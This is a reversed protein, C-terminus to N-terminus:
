LGKPRGLIEALVVARKLPPLYDLREPFGARRAPRARGQGAYQAGGGPSLGSEPAPFYPGPELNEAGSPLGASLGPFPGSSPASPLDPFSGSDPVFLPTSFPVSVPRPAVAPAPPAPAAQEPEDDVSLNWASFAEDGDEDEGYDRYASAELREPPPERYVAAEPREEARGRQQQRKGSKGIFLRAIQIVIAIGIIVAYPLNELISDM